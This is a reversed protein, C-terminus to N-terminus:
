GITEGPAASCSMILRGPEASASVPASRHDVLRPRSSDHDAVFVLDVREIAHRSDQAPLAHAHGQSGYGIVAVQRGLIASLDVDSDHIMKAM